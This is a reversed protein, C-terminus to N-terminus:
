LPRFKFLNIPESITYLFVIFFLLNYVVFLLKRNIYYKSKYLMMSLMVVELVRFFMNFRTAMMAISSLSFYILIGQFYLSVLMAYFKNNVLLKVPFIILILFVLRTIISFLEIGGWNNQWYSINVGVLKLLITLPEVLYLIFCIGLLWVVKRYSNISCIKLALYSLFIIAGTSHFTMAICSIIFVKLTSGKFMYYLSYIFFGMSIGQRMANYNYNIMFVFFYSLLPIGYGINVLKNIKKLGFFFPLLSMACCLFLYVIESDFSKSISAIFKFGPEINTYGKFINENSFFSPIFSYIQLYTDFDQGTDWRLSAIVCLFLVIFLAIIEKINDSVNATYEFLIYM